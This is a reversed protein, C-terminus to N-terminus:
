KGPNYLAYYAQREVDYLRDRDLETFESKMSRSGEPCRTFAYSELGHYPSVRVNYFEVPQDGVFKDLGRRLEAKARDIARAGNTHMGPEDMFKEAGRFLATRGNPEVVMVSWAVLPGSTATYIYLKKM